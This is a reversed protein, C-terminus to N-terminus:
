SQYNLFWLFQPKKHSNWLFNFPKPFQESFSYITANKSLFNITHMLCEENDSSAIFIYGTINKTAKVERAKQCTLLWLPQSLLCSFNLEIFLFPLNTLFINSLPNVPSKKLKFRLNISHNWPIASSIPHYFLFTTSGLPMQLTSPENTSILFPTKRLFFLSIKSKLVINM